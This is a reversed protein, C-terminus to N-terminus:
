KEIEVISELTLRKGKEKDWLIAQARRIAGVFGMDKHWSDGATISPLNRIIVGGSERVQESHLHGLHFERFKTKGWNEAQEVQMLEGIRRKEDAGHAWGILNRGWRLYKRPKPSTDVNVHDHERFWAWTAMTVYYSTMKDHNGPVWLVDVPAISALNTIAWILMNLGKEFMKAWRTDTDLQTGKSTTGNQTDFHFFDQGIPFVIKEVAIGYEQIQEMIDEILGVFLKEAIKLDYDTDSEEGWALKGLHLDMVPFELLLGNKNGVRYIYMPPAALNNFVEQIANETLGGDIPSVKVECMYSENTHKVGEWNRNKVTTNWFARRRKCYVLRWKTPSFGMLKMIRYDDELDEESLWLMRRTIRSGNENTTIENIGNEINEEPKWRARADIYQNIAANYKKASNSSVSIGVIEKLRDQANGNYDLFAQDFQDIPM